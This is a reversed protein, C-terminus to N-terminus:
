YGANQEWKPNLDLMGKSIPFVRRTKDFNATPFSKYHPFYEDEFHGFRIMDNRRWNEDFFERGREEYIENLSPNHDLQEAKAYARVQNVLDKAESSSGQRTLAEAKTLLVDAYRLLPIDNSQNRGNAYDNRTVHWKTNRLGQRWGTLNDGVNITFDQEVLTINRTLKLPNGEKDLVVQSTPLLTEPDLVFATNEDSGTAYRYDDLNESLGVILKNREDGKLNFLKVFEPTMTVYGGGSNTLQEGYYSPNLNKVDKYSHSRGYQMGTQETTHYPMVYIFDKVTGAQARETNDSAFKFRYADPGLAFKGSKIIEDCVSICDTLKENTASAADYSEVSSATYVPWNIYLKALLAQAMYKNPKGYNDGTTETSLLPIIDKLESELWRAVDARPQRKELDIESSLKSDNIPVDGWCDMMIFTFYARMARAPAIYRAEDADSDIIENAKVIGSTLEGMWDITADEYGFNHLSPHAYAGNDYWNGGYSVSTYEDSSLAMAEMYRRGFMGRLQFFIGSMQAELAEETGPYATYQSEVPVDLDTCSTFAVAFLGTALILKNLKM